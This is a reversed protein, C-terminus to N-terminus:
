NHSEEKTFHIHGHYLYKNHQHATFGYWFTLQSEEKPFYYIDKTYINIINARQLVLGFYYM